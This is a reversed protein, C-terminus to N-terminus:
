LKLSNPFESWVQQLSIQGGKWPPLHRKRNLIETITDFVLKRQLAPVQSTDKGKLHRQRELFQFIDSDEPLYNSARLIDSIYMFDWDDSNSEAHSIATSWMDDELEALQDSFDFLTVLCRHGSDRYILLIVDNNVPLVTGM